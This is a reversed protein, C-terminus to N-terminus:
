KLSYEWSPRGGNRGPPRRVRTLIGDRESARLRKDVTRYSDGSAESIELATGPLNEAYPVGVDVTARERKRPVLLYRSVGRLFERGGTSRSTTWLWIQNHNRDRAGRDYMHGGAFRSNLWAILEPDTSCIEVRQKATIHGEGDLIGAAYAWDEATPDQREIHPLSQARGANVTRMDSWLADIAQHRRRTADKDSINRHDFAPYREVLMRTLQRRREIVLYPEIAKAASLAAAGNVRWITQAQRRREPRAPSTRLFGGLHDALHEVPKPDTMAAALQPRRPRGPGQGLLMASGEADFVGACYALTESRSRLLESM